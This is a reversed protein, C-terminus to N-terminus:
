FRQYWVDNGLYRLDGNLEQPDNYLAATEIGNWENENDLCLTRLHEVVEEESEFIQGLAQSTEELRVQNMENLTVNQNGMYDRVIELTNITATM